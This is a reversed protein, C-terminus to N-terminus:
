ESVELPRFAIRQKIAWEQAERIPGTPSKYRGYGLRYVEWRGPGDEDEWYMMAAKWSKGYRVITIYPATHIADNLSM